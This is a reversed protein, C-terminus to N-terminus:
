GVSGPELEAFDLLYEDRTAAVGLAGPVVLSALGDHTRFGLRSGDALSLTVAVKAAAARRRIRERVDVQREEIRVLRRELPARLFRLASATWRVWFPVLLALAILAVIPVALSIGLMLRAVLVIVTTVLLLLIVTGILIQVTVWGTPAERRLLEPLRPDTALRTFGAEIQRAELTAEDVDAPQRLNAGCRPCEPAFQRDLPAGCRTCEWGAESM